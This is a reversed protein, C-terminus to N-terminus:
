AAEEKKEHGDCNELWTADFNWPWQFWGNKIGHPDGRVNLPNETMILSPGRGVGGLMVALELMPNHEIV